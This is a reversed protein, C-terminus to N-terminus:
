TMFLRHGIGENTVHTRTSHPILTLPRPAVVLTPSIVLLSERFPRRLLHLEIILLLLLTHHLELPLAALFAGHPTIGKNLAM